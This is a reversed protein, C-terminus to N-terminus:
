DNKKYKIVTFEGFQSDREAGWGRAKKGTLTHSDVM